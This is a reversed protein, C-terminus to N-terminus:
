GHKVYTPERRRRHGICTEFVWLCLTILMLATAAWTLGLFKSGKHAELGIPKGYKDIIESGKVCVATVLASALGIALFALSAVLVNLCAALRGSTIIAPLAALFSIAILGISICYMVFVATQIAHLADIGRQINDPWELDDLTVGLGSENLKREIIEKPDFQFNATRKSCDTVNKHIDDSKVTANPLPIPIYQGECYDLIHVSYWDDVGLRAAIDDAVSTAINRM